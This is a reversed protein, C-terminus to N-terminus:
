ENLKKVQNYIVYGVAGFFFLFFSIFVILYFKTHMVTHDERGPGQTTTQNVAPLITPAM